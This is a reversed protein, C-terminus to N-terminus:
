KWTVSTTSNCKEDNYTYTSTRTTFSMVPSWDTRKYGSARTRYYYTKGLSFGHIDIAETSPKTILKANSFSTSESIQIARSTPKFYIGEAPLTACRGDLINASTERKPIYYATRINSLFVQDTGTFSTHTPVTNVGSFLTAFSLSYLAIKMRISYKKM